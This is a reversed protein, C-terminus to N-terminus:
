KKKNSLAAQLKSGLAGGFTGLSQPAAQVHSRWSDEDPDRPVQLSIKGDASSVEAIQVTVEDNVKLKEYHFEPHDFTRSKHLLGNVREDLQVFVGYVEKRTIKGKFIQGPSFKGAAAAKVSAKETGAPAAERQQTQKISLSIKARGNITERKLIKVTVEQGVTLVEAPDNTRSWAIESVHVLGDVGPALEVFAGFKELRAVKGQVVQGDKNEELFSGQNLEREEELLKRRSVVINRGGETFQTIRFEFSKGVYDEPTTVHAVDIQSIPCFALKGKINVRVGGKCVEVIRGQVALMMDFADELDDALNKGTPNRSLRIDSGKVMTVYLDLIDDQKFALNGSEDLLERRNIVGDNVTGTSVFVDEAGLVLIKGRIKDGVKLKKQSGKLSEGLMRAFDEKEQKAGPKSEGDESLGGFEANLQDVFDSNKSKGM